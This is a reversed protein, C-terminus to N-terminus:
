EHGFIPVGLQIMEWTNGKVQKYFLIFLRAKSNVM